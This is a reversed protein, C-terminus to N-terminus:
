ADAGTGSMREVLRTMNDVRFKMEDVRVQYIKERCDMYINFTHCVMEDILSEFRSLEEYFGKQNKESELEARVAKKLLFVFAAAQSPSFDQVSRIKIIDELSATARQSDPKGQLLEDYLIGIASTTIHGIPNTFRDRTKLMSTGGDPSTQAILEFWRKLVSNKKRVLVDELAM